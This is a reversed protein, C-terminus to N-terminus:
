TTRLLYAAVLADAAPSHPQHLGPIWTIGEEAKYGYFEGDYAYHPRVCVHPGTVFSRCAIPTYEGLYTITTVPARTM